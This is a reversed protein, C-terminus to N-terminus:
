DTTSDDKLVEQEKKWREFEKRDPFYPRWEGRMKEVQEKTPSKLDSIAIDLAENVDRMSFFGKLGHLWASAEGRTM